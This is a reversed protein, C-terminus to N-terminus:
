HRLARHGYEEKRPALAPLQTSCSSLEDNQRQSNRVATALPFARKDCFALNTRRQGLEVKAVVKEYSEAQDQNQDSIVIRISSVFNMRQRRSLIAAAAAEMGKSLLLDSTGLINIAFM